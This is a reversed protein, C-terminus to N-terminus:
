ADPGRKTAAHDHLAPASEMGLEKGDGLPHTKLLNRDQVVAFCRFFADRHEDREQFGDYVSSGQLFGWDRSNPLRPRGM